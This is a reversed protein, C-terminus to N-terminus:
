LKLLKYNISQKNSKITIFLLGKTFSTTNITKNNGNINKEEYLQQGLTNYIVLDYPNTFTQNIHFYDTVPNPYINIQHQLSNENIDTAYSYNYVFASDTSVAVDDLYYYANDSFDNFFKITDTNADDFFNGIVLYTYASDAVFSGMIRTWNLSDIIISDTFVPTNNTINCPYFGTTFAAGIKDSACNAQIFSTLALVVKFSVYYKIGITLPTSFNSAVFERTNPSDSNYTLFGTYANGSAPLQYGAWNNPVSMDSQNCTNYFDPSGCFSTWGTSKDIDGSQYPCSVTDEFSPNVVLNTQGMGVSCCVFLVFALVSFGKYFPLLSCFPLGDGERGSHFSSYPINIKKPKKM